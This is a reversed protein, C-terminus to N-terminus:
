EDAKLVSQDIDAPLEEISVEFREQVKNMVAADDDDSVFSIALGKTGFRGARAVRHLYTDSPDKQHLSEQPMDYNFVLNVREVDIGRGMLDTAVLIRKKYSKFEAFRALREEQKIKGGGYIAVAPFQQDTLLKTLAECRRVNSVFIVVQNFELEDLLGFLKRNKEKDDLKVYHQRLSTLNLKTSDDIYVEMPKHMFKKCVARVETNLTASFMMVQKDHPTKVFINQVDRRMDEADLVQDCEDIVFHKLSDLKLNNDNILKKLRGPTGVVIHPPNEKLDKINQSMPFGGTIVMTKIEPLYKTFRTYEDFIQQALERTHCMVLVHVQDKEAEIDLQQLTSLVFVATKGMGSKAQCIVDTRQIAVPICEAQVQSPHEFGCDVIAKMIEAKLLFDRFGTTNISVHTKEGGESAPQQAAGEDDDEYDLLDTAEADDAM